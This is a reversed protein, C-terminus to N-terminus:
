KTNIKFLNSNDTYTKLERIANVMSISATPIFESSITRNIAEGIDSVKEIIYNKKYVENFIKLLEYKNVANNVTYHVTHNLERYEQFRRKAIINECFQAYQLTTVGNWQHHTFGKLLSKQPHSLFWELLSLRGKLEIGIISCRINLLNDSRVEGLSKTKGYVDFADHVSSETYYSGKGSFVCDTAIQIIKCNPVINSCIISLQHPFLANIAIAAQVGKMDNDRCYPKIIGICNIVYDPVFAELIDSLQCNIDKTGDFNYISDDECFFKNSSNDRLTGAVEFDTCQQLYDYVMAGLM